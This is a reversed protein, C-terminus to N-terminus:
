RARAWLVAACTALLVCRKREMEGKFWGLAETLAEGGLSVSLRDHYDILQFTCGQRSLQAYGLGDEGRTTATIEVEGPTPQWRGRTEDSLNDLIAAAEASLHRAGLGALFELAEPLTCAKGLCRARLIHNRITVQLPLTAEQFPEFVRAADLEYMLQLRPKPSLELGASM